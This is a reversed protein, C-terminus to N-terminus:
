KCKKEKLSEKAELRDTATGFIGVSLAPNYGRSEAETNTVSVYKKCTSCIFGVTHESGLTPSECKPCTVVINLHSRVTKKKPFTFPLRDHFHKNKQNHSHIMERYRGSGIEQELPSERKYSPTPTPGQPASDYNDVMKKVERKVADVNVSTKSKKSM